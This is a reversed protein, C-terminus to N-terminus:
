WCKCVVKMNTKIDRILKLNQLQINHFWVKHELRYSICWLGEWKQTTIKAEQLLSSISFIFSRSYCKLLFLCVISKVALLKRSKKGGNTWRGKSHVRLLGCVCIGCWWRRVDVEAVAPTESWQSRLLVAKNIRPKFTGTYCFTWVKDMARVWRCPLPLSKRIMGWCTSAIEKAKWTPIKKVEM